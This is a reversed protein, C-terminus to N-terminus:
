AKEGSLAARILENRAMALGCDCGDSLRCYSCPSQGRVLDLLVRVLSLLTPIDEFPDSEVRAKERQEAQEIYTNLETM